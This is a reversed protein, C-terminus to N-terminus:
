NILLLNSIFYPSPCRVGGRPFSLADSFKCQGLGSEHVVEGFGTGDMQYRNSSSTGVLCM